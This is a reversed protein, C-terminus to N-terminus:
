LLALLKKKEIAFEENTLLGNDYMLKLKKVKKEFDTTDDDKSELMKNSSNQIIAKQEEHEHQKLINTKEIELVIDYKKEPLHTQLFNYIDASLEIDIYQKKIDSYYNLIVNRDDIKQVDSSINFSTQPLTINTPQHSLIAGAAMGMPGFLLGGLLTNRKSVTGGTISGGFSSYSGNIDTTYHITGAKEYYHIQSYKIQANSEEQAIGDVRLFNLNKDKDVYICAIFLDDNQILYYPNNEKNIHFHLCNNYFELYKERQSKEELLRQEQLELEKQKISETIDKKYKEIIDITENSNIVNPFYITEVNSYLPNTYDLEICRYGNIYTTGISKINEYAVKFPFDYFKGDYGKKAGVGEITKAYIFITITNTKGFRSNKYEGSFSSILNQEVFLM